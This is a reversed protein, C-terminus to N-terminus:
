EGDVEEPLPEGLYPCDPSGPPGEDYGQCHPCNARGCWDPNTDVNSMDGRYAPSPTDPRTVLYLHGSPPVEGGCFDFIARLWESRGGFGSLATYTGLLEYGMGAEKEALYTVEVNFEKETGRGRNCWTRQTGEDPTAKRKTERFTVVAGYDRLQKFARRDSFSIVM